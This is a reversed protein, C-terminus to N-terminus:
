FNFGRGRRERGGAHARRTSMKADPETNHGPSQLNPMVPMTVAKLVETSDTIKDVCCGEKRKPGGREGGLAQEDGEWWLTVRNEAKM